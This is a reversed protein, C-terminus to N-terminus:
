SLDYESYRSFTQLLTKTITWNTKNERDMAVWTGEVRRQLTQKVKKSLINQAILWSNNKTEIRFFNELSWFFRWPPNKQSFVNAQLMWIKQLPVRRHNGEKYDSLHYKSTNEPIATVFDKCIISVTQKIVKIIKRFM